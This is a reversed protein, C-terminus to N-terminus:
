SLFYNERVNDSSNSVSIVVRGCKERASHLVDVACFAFFLHVHDHGGGGGWGVGGVGGVGGWGGWM